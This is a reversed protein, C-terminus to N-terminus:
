SKKLEEIQRNIAIRVYDRFKIGYKSYFPQKGVRKKIIKHIGALTNLYEKGDINIRYLNFDETRKIEILKIPFSLIADRKREKTSGDQNLKEKVVYVGDNDLEIYYVEICVNGSTIKKIWNKSM